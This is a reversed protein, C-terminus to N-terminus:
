PQSGEGFWYRNFSAPMYEDPLQDEFPPIEVWQGSAILKDVVESYRQAVDKRAEEDRNGRFEMALWGLQHELPEISSSPNQSPGQQFM